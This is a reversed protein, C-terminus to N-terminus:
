TPNKPKSCIITANVASIASELSFGFALNIQSLLYGILYGM